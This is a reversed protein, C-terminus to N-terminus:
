SASNMSTRDRGAIHMRREMMSPEEQEVEVAHISASDIDPVISVALKGQANPCLGHYVKV